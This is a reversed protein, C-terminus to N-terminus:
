IMRQKKKGNAWSSSQPQDDEVEVIIVDEQQPSQPEVRDRFKGPVQAVLEDFNDQLRNYRELYLVDHYFGKFLPDSVRKTEEIKM